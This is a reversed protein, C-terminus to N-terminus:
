DSKAKKLVKFWDAYKPISKEKFDFEWTIENSKKDENMSFGADEFIRKIADNRDTQIYKSILNNAKTKHAERM